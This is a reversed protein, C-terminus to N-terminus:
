ISATATRPTAVGFGRPKHAVLYHDEDIPWPDRFLPGNGDGDQNMSGSAPDLFHWGAEALIRVQPTIYTMPEETRIPKNMDIRVVTGLANQPYHPCGLFVYKNAVGPIARAQIMTTPFAIDNGYIESSDTGDPRMSWICKAAVAGKDVYEWRAYMIRGNPLVTPTFESLAGFSLQRLNTGDVDVRHLVCTTFADGGHCLTSTQCRTSVFAIGGDPLYCPHMDDTGNHYDLHYKKVLEAENDPAKLIQRLGSGDIGVEYIRYGEDNSRKWDFVVKGADFSIDFRGFVGGKLEAALPRTSGDTLSLIYIGGGPKWQSNLFETYYHNSNYTFRKLFVVEDTGLMQRLRTRTAAMVAETEGEPRVPDAALAFSSVVATLVLFRLIGAQRTLFGKAHSLRTWDKLNDFLPSAPGVAFLPAAVLLHLSVPLLSRISPNM